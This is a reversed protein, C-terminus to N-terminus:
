DRVSGDFLHPEALMQRLLASQAPRNSSFLKDLEEVSFAHADPRSMYTAVAASRPLKVLSSVIGFRKMLGVRVKQPNKDIDDVAQLAWLLHQQHPSFCSPPGDLDTGKYSENNWQIMDETIKRLKNEFDFVLKYATEAEQMVAKRRSWRSDTSCNMCLVTALVVLRFLIRKPMM